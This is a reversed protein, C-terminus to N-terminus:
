APEAVPESPAPSTPQTEPESQWVDAENPVPAELPTLGPGSGAAASMEKVKALEQEMEWLRRDLAEIKWTAQKLKSALSVLSIIVVIPIVLIILAVLPIISDM